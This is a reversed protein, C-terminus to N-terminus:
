LPLPVSVLHPTDTGLDDIRIELPHFPVYALRTYGLCTNPPGIEVGFDSSFCMGYLLDILISQSSM